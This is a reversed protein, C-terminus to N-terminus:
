EGVQRLNGLQLPRQVAMHNDNYGCPQESAMECLKMQSHWMGQKKKLVSKTIKPNKYAYIDTYM